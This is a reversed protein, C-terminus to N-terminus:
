MQECTAAREEYGTSLCDAIHLCRETGELASDAKTDEEDSDLRSELRWRCDCPRTEEPGLSTAVDELVIEVQGTKARLGILRVSQQLYHVTQEEHRRAGSPLFV